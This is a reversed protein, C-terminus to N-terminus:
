CNEQPISAWLFLTAAYSRRSVKKLLLLNDKLLRVGSIM